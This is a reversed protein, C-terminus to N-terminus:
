TLSAPDIDVLWRDGLRVRGVLAAPDRGRLILQYRFEGRMRAVYTPMPGLIDPEGRGASDRALRLEAAVRSAEEIAHEQNLHHYVLRALRSFPPYGARRRHAIEIEYFSRYDHDAACQIPAADPDYTQIYVYGPKDRRGARGAVQCLLQFTREHAHYEPLSLGVDADVVGVVTMEPLDLGKALMQTGVLIDIERAELARVIREHSGKQSSVDSDWRAVRAGPFQSKAEQEIKQTGVGFPRYRGSDCKPCRDELRKARGCHHCVLRAHIQEHLDLSMAVQCSSCLPLYGCDRCLMFRASGRRNVFLISQEGEALSRMVARRLPLSFVSRNGSKLEERMDVVTVQPLQGPRTTGDGAPSLRDGLEHLGIGGIVGRHYTVIDPTASGLVVTAGTLECLREAVNRAHYRPQHDAQKYSWEHEEDLVILGLNAAPAFIASRSGLIVRAEGRQIRYWQDFLEGTGLQSHLVTLTEGFREGYRRIAQPTLAIEPVLVITSKGAELTRRVLDLYVETKGSGTVGHILHTKGPETWIASAVSEQLDSLVLPPRTEFAYGDLPDRVLQVEHERIWGQEVLRRVHSPTAGAERAEGLILDGSALRELLRAEVSAQRKTRLSEAYAIAEAPLRALALRREFKPRGPPRALGQAVTLHGAEQLRKLRPLTLGPVAERLADFTSRGHAAIYQLVQQDRPYVPLLAPVDVPSIMTVAKQGYGAPLCVAVSEWLSALYTESLWHALDIHVTDLVPAVDAIAAVARVQEVAPREETVRLVIGQLVRPGFPVFVAQGSEATMGEPIGYSFAMRAAQGTNVAVDAFRSFPSDSTV